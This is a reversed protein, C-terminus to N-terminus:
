QGQQQLLQLLSLLLPSQAAGGEDSGFQPTKLGGGTLGESSSTGGYQSGARSGILRRGVATERLPNARRAAGGSYPTGTPTQSFLADLASTGQGMGFEPLTPMPPPPQSAPATVGGTTTSPAPSSAETPTMSTTTGGSVTPEPVPAAPFEPPPGESLPAGPPPAELASPVAEEPLPPPSIPNGFEDVLPALAM